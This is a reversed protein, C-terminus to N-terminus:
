VWISAGIGDGPAGPAPPLPESEGMAHRAATWVAACADLLDDEGFGSGRFWAPVALGATELAARREAVGQAAADGALRTVSVHALVEIVEVGSVDLDVSKDEPDVAVAVVALETSERALDVLAAVSASTLVAAPRGPAQVVGVWGTPCAAVGLVPVAVRLPAPRSAHLREVEAVLADRVPELGYAEVAEALLATLRPRWDDM